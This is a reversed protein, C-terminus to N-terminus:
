CHNGAAARWCLFRFNCLENAIIGSLADTAYTVAAIVDGHYLSSINADANDALLALLGAKGSVEGDQLEGEKSFQEDPMATVAVLAASLKCLENHM